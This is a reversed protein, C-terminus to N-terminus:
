TIKKYSAWNCYRVYDFGQLYYSTTALLLFLVAAVAIFANAERKKLQIQIQRNKNENLLADEEIEIEVPISSDLTLIAKQIKNRDETIEFDLPKSKFKV